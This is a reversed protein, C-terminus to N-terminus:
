SRASYLALSSSVDEECKGCGWARTFLVSFSFIKRSKYLLEMKMEVYAHSYMCIVFINTDVLLSCSYFKKEHEEVEEM